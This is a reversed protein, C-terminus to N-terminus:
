PNLQYNTKITKIISDQSERKPLCSIIRYTGGKKDTEVVTFEVFKDIGNDSNKIEIKIIEEKENKLIRSEGGCSNLANESTLSFLSDENTIYIDEENSCSSLLSLILGLFFLKKLFFFFFLLKGGGIYILQWVIPLGERNRLYNIIIGKRMFSM